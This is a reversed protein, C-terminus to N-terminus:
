SAPERRIARPDVGHRKFLNYLTARSIGLSKAAQTANGNAKALASVLLALAEERNAITRDSRAMSPLDKLLIRTHGANRASIVASTMVSKLQRINDEWPGLLLAEAARMSLTLEECQSQIFGDALVLIDERRECLRPIRMVITTLAYYLDTRVNTWATTDRLDHVSSAIVRVPASPESWGTGQQAAAIGMPVSLVNQAEADLQTIGDVFLVGGAADAFARALKTPCATAANLVVFPGSQPSVSHVIRALWEKGSGKDGLILIPHHPPAVRMTAQWLQWLRPGAILPHPVNLFEANVRRAPTAVGDIDDVVLLLTRGIRLVSGAHVPAGGAGVLTADVYTGHTSGLDFIRM